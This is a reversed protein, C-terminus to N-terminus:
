SAKTIHSTSFETVIGSEINKIIVPRSMYNNLSIKRILDLTLFM